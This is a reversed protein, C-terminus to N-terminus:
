LEDHKEAAPVPTSEPTAEATSTSEAVSVLSNAAKQEVFEILSELTREGDFDIFDKTGARKFKITPFGSITFPASLPLDNETADMKAITIKDKQGAYRQGLEEWIPALRKCHGCWPAYFEVFVDKSDDFIVEDFQKGVLVFTGEEQKEPIPESKLSPELKKGVFQSVFDEITDPSIDITQDLPYKTSAAIDQIAFSPWKEQVLNLNKAHGAYHISDIWVFNVKGKYKAAIPKISDVLKLRQAEDTPDVFLYALPLGSEAYTPYNDGGIQDILPTANEKIFAPLEDFSAGKFDSRGDDFQKYVVVAPPTVGAAKIADKDTTQGFLYSDRHKEAIESFVPAPAETSSTLYAVVVVKDKKQFEEHTAATLESVAPLSQKVMYQVIGEEERPGNYDTPTGNRFVKLTPYGGIGHEKCIDEEVTCDVKALKINQEKLTTAALEYKPALAKCHGCWPAFFEVLMPDEADVITKFNDKNLEIVDSASALWPALAGLALLSKLLVSQRM